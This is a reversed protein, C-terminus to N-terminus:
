VHDEHDTRELLFFRIKEYVIGQIGKLARKM